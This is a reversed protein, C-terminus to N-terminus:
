RVLEVTERRKLADVEVSRILDIFMVTTLCSSFIIHMAEDRNRQAVIAMQPDPSQIQGAIVNRDMLHM